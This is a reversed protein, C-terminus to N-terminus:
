LILFLIQGISNGFQISKKVWDKKHEFIGFFPIFMLKYIEFFSRVVSSILDVNIMPFSNSKARWCTSGRPPNTRTPMASILSDRPKSPAGGRRGSEGWRARARRWFTDLARSGTSSTARCSTCRTAAVRMRMWSYVWKWSALESSELARRALKQLEGRQRLRFKEVPEEIGNLTEARRRSDAKNKAAECESGNHLFWLARHNEPRRSLLQFKM